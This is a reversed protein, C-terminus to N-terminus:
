SQKGHNKLLVNLILIMISIGAAIGASVPVTNDGTQVSKVSGPTKQIVTVSVKETTTTEESETTTTEESETTTTEGSETTTTGGSETTTTEESETTTTEESETTTTGGSETTTTGGSETTTGSEKPHYPYFHSESETYLSDAIVGGEHRGGTVRVYANPAVLHGNLNCYTLDSANPYNWILNMGQM